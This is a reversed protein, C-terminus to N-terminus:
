EGKTKNLLRQRHKEWLQRVEKQDVRWGLALSCADPHPCGGGAFDKSNNRAVIQRFAELLLENREGADTPAQKLVVEQVVNNEAPSVPAGEEDVPLIGRELCEEYMGKPVMTPVGKLFQIAHGTNKSRVVVDRNSTFNM